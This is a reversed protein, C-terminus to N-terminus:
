EGMPELSSSRDKLKSALDLLLGSSSSFLRRAAAATCMSRTAGAAAFNRISDVVFVATTDGSGQV